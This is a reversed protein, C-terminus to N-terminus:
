KGAKLVIWAIPVEGHQDDPVGAVACQSVAPHQMIVEEIERPWVQFGGVKIMDKKRDVIYFYGDGDMWAIDGTHLWGGRLVRETEQAQHYYGAMIQPGKILLEGKKGSPMVKQDNVTSVIRAEVDPLPVGISGARNEGLLPNCHTATPAESLGYGEIVKCHGIKEFSDKVDVPLPASGSICVKLSTLDFQGIHEFHNISNLLSPVAPFVTTKYLQITELVSLVKRTDDPIALCAGIFMALNLALVLGYVHYM